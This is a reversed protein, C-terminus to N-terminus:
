GRAAALLRALRKWRRQRYRYFVEAFLAVLPTARGADVEIRDEYRSRGHGVPSVTLQHRWRRILGGHEDSAIVRADEDMTAIRLHHRSFPIAGFLLTWGELDDGVSWPRDLHEAAPFRLMGSAVHVFAHPTKVSSWVVDVPADLECAVVVTRMCWAHGDRSLPRPTRGCSRATALAVAQGEAAVAVTSARRAWAMARWRAQDVGCQVGRVSM